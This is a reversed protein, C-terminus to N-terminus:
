KGKGFIFSFIYGTAVCTVLGIFGYLTTNIPSTANLVLLVALSCVFGALAAKTGIRKSIVGMLFLGGMGSTLLGVFFNFQDWLSVIDFTALALAMVIGFCGVAIGSWRAFHMKSSDASAKSLKTYFDETMVTSSSNINASLTSMAASFIAAILLGAVGVPLECVIFHPFISDTNSMEVNLMEPHTKFFVYLGTGISMFIFTIPITLIGNLWLSKKASSTDKVTLYRQVVSQDSSYTLLQNSFGGLVTVWFVPQTWDFAFNLIQFKNDDVAVRMIEGFGGDVGAVLWVLTLLAGGVLIIGQIVDCWVVAGIGGMTCYLLTVVGMVLICAYVNIGTVANLALSPLFLVIAVRALMFLCFFLSALSRIIPSFREELYQYASAVKLKRFFPLYLNIVVPVVTIIMMNYMFMGWNGMYAKAPISLFTIASLATAFISIGAAWWPISGGGKFFEDTNKAKRSFHFGVLMMSALYLVIILYNVWGFRVHETIKIRHIAPSRVGPTTEGSVVIYEGEAARFGAACAPLPVDSSGIRSWTGTISHFSYIGSDFGPHETFLSDPVDSGANYRKTFEVGDDGGFVLVNASGSPIALSYMLTLPEGDKTMKTKLSWQQRQPLYEWISSSLYLGNEDVGRGGILYLAEERGNHQYVLSSGESILRDPCAPLSEWSRESPHFAWLANKGDQSGTTYIIGKHFCSSAPIFGPPLAAVSDVKFSGGSPTIAYVIESRGSANQGGLCWLNKGDSASAGNSLSVPLNVETISGYYLGDAAKRILIIDDYYEKIGGNWPAEKPFDSGGALILSSGSQGYFACALGRHGIDLKGCEDTETDSAGAVFPVLTLLLATAFLRNTM